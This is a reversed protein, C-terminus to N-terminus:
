GRRISFPVFDLGFHRRQPCVPAFIIAHGLRHSPNTNNGGVWVAFGAVNRLVLRKQNSSQFRHCNPFRGSGHCIWRWRALKAWLTTWPAGSHSWLEYPFCYFRIIIAWPDISWTHRESGGFFTILDSSKLEFETQVQALWEGGRRIPLKDWNILYVCQISSNCGWLSTHLVFDWWFLSCVLLLILVRATPLFTLLSPVSCATIRSSKMAHPRRKEYQM